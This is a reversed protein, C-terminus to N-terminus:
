IKAVVSFAIMTPFSIFFDFHFHRRLHRPSVALLIFCSFFAIPYFILVNGKLFFRDFQPSWKRTVFSFIPMFTLHSFFVFLKKKFEKVLLKKVESTTLLIEFSEFSKKNRKDRSITSASEIHSRAALHAFLKLDYFIVRFHFHLLISIHSVEQPKQAQSPKSTIILM